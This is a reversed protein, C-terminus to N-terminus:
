GSGVWVMSRTPRIWNTSRRSASGSLAPLIGFVMDRIQENGLRADRSPGSPAMSGFAGPQSATLHLDSAGVAVAYRLLDDIHLPM